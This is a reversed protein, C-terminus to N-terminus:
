YLVDISVTIFLKKDSIAFIKQKWKVENYKISLAARSFSGCLRLSISSFFSSIWISFIERLPKKFTAAAAAMLPTVAPARAAQLEAAEELVAAVPSAM